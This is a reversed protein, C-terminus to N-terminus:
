SAEGQNEIGEDEGNQIQESEVHKTKSAKKSKIRKALETAGIVIVLALSSVLKMIRPEGLNVLILMYLFRYILSGATIACLMAALNHRFFLITEGIIITAVGVVMMGTGFTSDYYRQYQMFLAGSFAILANSLALGVIKLMDTSVSQTQIMTENDGCARVSLGLKTKFFLFVAVGVIVTIGLMIFLGAVDNGRPFLTIAAKPLNMNPAFRTVALNVTYFATLTLIGSLVKDIHLKTHLLATIVGAAGGALFAILLGLVPLKFTCFMVSCAAGLTFSAEATLDTFNLIKFSLFIGFGLLAFILGLILTNLVM